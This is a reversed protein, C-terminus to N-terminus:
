MLLGTSVVSVTGTRALAGQPSSFVVSVGLCLPHVSFVMFTRDGHM